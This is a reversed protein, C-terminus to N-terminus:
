ERNTDSTEETEGEVTEDSSSTEEVAPITDNLAKERENLQREKDKLESAWVSYKDQLMNEYNLINVSSSTSAIFLMVAIGVIFIINFIISTILRDKTKKLKKNCEELLTKDDVEPRLIEEKLSTEAKDSVEEEHKQQVPTGDPNLRGREILQSELEDVYALGISTKFLNQAKVKRYIVQLDEDSTSNKTKARMFAVASQEKKAANAEERTDFEYGAVLFKEAM